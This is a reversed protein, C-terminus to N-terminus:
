LQPEMTKRSALYVEPTLGLQSCTAKEEDTLTDSKAAAARRAEPDNGVDVIAPTMSLYAAFGTPDTKAYNTAWARSEPAPRIKGAAIAADVSATTREEDIADLRTRLVTLEGIPVFKAPDVKGGASAATRIEDISADGKLGLATCVATRESVLASVAASIDADSAGDALGLLAALTKMLDGDEMMDQDSQSAVAHLELEPRNTLAANFIRTVRGDKRHGFYPSIYRYEKAVLAASAAETWEVNAFIGEPTAELQPMWGAAKATGGVGDKAGFVSQHDYDIMPDTSKNYANSAAVIEQAHALDAVMYPVGGDRKPNAGMALLQIRTPPAGDGALAIAGVNATARIEGKIKM